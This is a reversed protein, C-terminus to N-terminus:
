SHIRRAVQNSFFFFSFPVTVERLISVQLRQLSLASNERSSREENWGALKKYQRMKPVTFNEKSLWACDLISCVTSWNFIKQEEDNESGVLSALLRIFDGFFFFPFTAVSFRFTVDGIPRVVDGLSPLELGVGPVVLFDPSIFGLGSL